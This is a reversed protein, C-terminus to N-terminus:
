RNCCAPLSTPIEHRKLAGLVKFDIVGDVRRCYKGAHRLAVGHAAADFRARGRHTRRHAFVGRSDLSVECQSLGLPLQVCIDSLRDLSPAQGRRRVAGPDAPLAFGRLASDRDGLCLGPGAALITIRGLGQAM